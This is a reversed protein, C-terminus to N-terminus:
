RPATEAFRRIADRILTIGEADLPQGIRVRSIVAYVVEANAQSGPGAPDLARLFAVIRPVDAAEVPFGNLTNLVSGTMEVNGRQLVVLRGRVDAQVHQGQTRLAAPDEPLVEILRYGSAGQTGAVFTFPTVSSPRALSGAPPPLEYTARIQAGYDTAVREVRETSFGARGGIGFLSGGVTGTIKTFVSWANRDDRQAATILEDELRTWGRPLTFSGERAPTGPLAFNIQRVERVGLSGADHWLQTGLPNNLGLNLTELLEPNIPGALLTKTESSRSLNVGVPLPPVGPISTPTVAARWGLTIELPVAMVTEGAANVVTNLRYRELPPAAPDYLVAGSDVASQLDGFEIYNGLNVGLADAGVMASPAVAKVAWGWGAPARRALSQAVREALDASSTIPQLQGSRRLDDYVGSLNIVQNPDRQGWLDAVVGYDGIRISVRPGSRQFGVRGLEERQPLSLESPALQRATTQLPPELSRIQGSPDVVLPAGTIPDVFEIQPQIASRTPPPNGLGPPMPLSPARPLRGFVSDGMTLDWDSTDLVPEDPEGPATATGRPPAGPPLRGSGLGGARLWAVVDQGYAGNMLARAAEARDADTADHGAERVLTVIDPNAEAYRRWADQEAPTLRPLVRRSFDEDTPPPTSARVTVRGGADLGLLGALGNAEIVSQALTGDRLAGGNMAWRLLSAAQGRTIREMFLWRGDDAPVFLSLEDIRGAAIQAANFERITRKGAEYRSADGYLAQRGGILPLGEAFDADDLGRARTRLGEVSLGAGQLITELNGRVNFSESRDLAVLYDNFQELVVRPDLGSFTLVGQVHQGSAQDWYDVPVPISVELGGRNYAAAAARARRLTDTSELTLVEFRGSDAVQRWIFESAPTAGNFTSAFRRLRANLEDATFQAVRPGVIAPGVLNPDFAPPSPRDSRGALAGPAAGSTASGAGTGPTAGLFHAYNVVTQALMQRAAADPTGLKFQYIATLISEARALGTSDGDRASTMANVFATHLLDLGRQIEANPHRSTLERLDVHVASPDVSMRRFRNEIEWRVHGQGAPEANLLLDAAVGLPLGAWKLFPLLKTIWGLRSGSAATVARIADDAQQPSLTGDIMQQLIQEVTRTQQPTWKPTSAVLWVPEDLLAPEARLDLTNGREVPWDNRVRAVM